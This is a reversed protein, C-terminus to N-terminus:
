AEGSAHDLLKFEQVVSQRDPSTALLAYIATVKAADIVVEDHATLYGAVSKANFDIFHMDAVEWADHGKATAKYQLLVDSSYKGLRRLDVLGVMAWAHYETDFICATFKISPLEPTELNLGLEESLARRATAYLDFRGHSIDAETTLEAVGCIVRGTNVGTRSGRTVFLLMDDSTIVALYTGFGQSLYPVM